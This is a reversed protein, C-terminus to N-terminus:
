HNFYNKVFKLLDELYQFVKSYYNNNTERVIYGNEVELIEFRYDGIM